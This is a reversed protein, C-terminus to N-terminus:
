ISLKKKRSLIDGITARPSKKRWVGDLSSKSSRCAILINRGRRQSYAAISWEILCWPRQWLPGIPLQRQFCCNAGEDDRLCCRQMMMMMEEGFLM